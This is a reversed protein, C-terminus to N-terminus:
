PLIAEGIHYQDDFGALYLQILTVDNINLGNGEVDAAAENFGEVDYEALVRQITTADNITVEGDGDADGRIVPSVDTLVYDIGNAIAYQMAYSGSHCRIVLDDCGSFANDAISVISDPLEISKLSACNAFALNGIDTVDNEFVVTDLLTCGYFAQAPISSVAGERFRVYTLSTCSDFASAGMDSVHSPIEVYKLKACEAFACQGLSKLKVADYLSLTEITGNGFFAFGEVSTVYYTLFKERIVVDSEEGQYGHVYAENNDVGYYFGESYFYSGAANVSLATCIILAAGLTFALLKKFHTM